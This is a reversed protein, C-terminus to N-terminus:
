LCKDTLIPTDFKRGCGHYVSDVVKGDVGKISIRWYNETWGVQGGRLLWVLCKDTILLTDFTGGRRHYVSDLSKWGNRLHLNDM